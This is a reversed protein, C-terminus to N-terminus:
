GERKLIEEASWDPLDNKKPCFIACLIRAILKIM